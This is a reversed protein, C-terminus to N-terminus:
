VNRARLRTLLFRADSIFILTDQYVQRSKKHDYTHATITRMKRYRFLAETATSPM